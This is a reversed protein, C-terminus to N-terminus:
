LTDVLRGSSNPISLTGSLQATVAQKRCSYMLPWEELAKPKVKYDCHYAAYCNFTKVGMGIFTFLLSFVLQLLGIRGHRRGAEEVM